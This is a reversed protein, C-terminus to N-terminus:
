YKIVGHSKHRSRGAAARRHAQKKKNKEKKRERGKGRKGEKAAHVPRLRMQMVVCERGRGEECVYENVFCVCCIITLLMESERDM